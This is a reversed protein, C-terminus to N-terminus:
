EGRGFPFKNVCGHLVTVLHAQSHVGTKAYVQKLHTRVTGIGLQFNQAIRALPMGAALAAAVEAERATLGFVDRLFAPDIPPPAALEHLFLSVCGSAESVGARSLPLVSVVLPLRGSPRRLMIRRAAQEQAASGVALLEHLRRTAASDSALLNGDNGISLGDREDLIHRANQNVFQVGSHNWLIVADNIHELLTQARVKGRQAMSLRQHLELATAIHPILAEVIRQAAIDFAGTKRIRCVSLNIGSNQEGITTLSYFGGAPRILENYVASREVERDSMIDASSVVRGPKYLRSIEQFSPHLYRRRPAYAAFRALNSADLGIGTAFLGEERQPDDHSLFVHDAETLRALAELAQPWNGTDLVTAYIHEILSLHSRDFVPQSNQSMKETERHIVSGTQYL